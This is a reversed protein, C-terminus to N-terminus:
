STMPLSSIMWPLSLAVQAAIYLKCSWVKHGYDNSQCLVSHSLPTQTMDHRLAGVIIQGEIPASVTLCYICLSKSIKIDTTQKKVVSSDSIKKNHHKNDTFCTLTRTDANGPYVHPIYNISCWCNEPKERSKHYLINKFSSLKLASEVHNWIESM